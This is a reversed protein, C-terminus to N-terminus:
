TPEGGMPDAFRRIYVILDRDRAEGSAKLAAIKADHEADTGQMVVVRSKPAAAEELRRLRTETARM